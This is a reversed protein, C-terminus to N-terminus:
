LVEKKSKRSRTARAKLQTKCNGILENLEKAPTVYDLDDFESSCFEFADFFDTLVINLEKRIAHSDVKEIAADSELRQMYLNEFRTNVNRLEGFLIALNLAEAATKVDAKTDYDDLLNITRQTCINYGTKAIDRGNFDLFRKLVVVHPAIAPMSLKRLAKVIRVIATFLNARDTATDRVSKTLVNSLDQVKIKALIPLMATLKEFAKKLHLAEPDFDSFIEVLQNVFISYESNRLHTLHVRIITTKM